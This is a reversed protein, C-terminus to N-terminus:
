LWLLLLLNVCELLAALFCDGTCCRPSDDDRLLLATAALMTCPRRLLSALSSRFCPPAARDLGSNRTSYAYLYSHSPPIWVRSAATSSTLATKGSETTRALIPSCNITLIFSTAGPYGVTISTSLRSSYLCFRRARAPRLDAFGAIRFAREARFAESCHDDVGVYGHSSSYYLERM